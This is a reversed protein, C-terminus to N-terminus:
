LWVEQPLANVMADFKKGAEDDWKGFGAKEAEDYLRNIEAASKLQGANKGRIIDISDKLDEYRRDLGIFQICIRFSKRVADVIDKKTMAMLKKIAEEEAWEEEASEDLGFYDGEFSDFGLLDFEDGGGTAVFLTDFIEPIWTSYIDEIMRECDVALTSFMMKFEYAEEEGGILEDILSDDETEEFWRVEECAEQIEDLRHQIYALNMNKCIPQKYRRAKAKQRRTEIERATM